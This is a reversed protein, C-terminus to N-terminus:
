VATTDLRTVRVNLILLRTLQHTYGMNAFSAVGDPSHFLNGSFVIALNMPSM